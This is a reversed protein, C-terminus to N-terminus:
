VEVKIYINKTDSLENQTKHEQIWEDNESSLSMNKLKPHNQNSQYKKIDPIVDPILDDNESNSVM